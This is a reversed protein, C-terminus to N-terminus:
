WRSAGAPAAAGAPAGRPGDAAKGANKGSAALAASRGACLGTVAAVGLGGEGRSPDFGALAAGAAFLPVGASTAPAGRDDLARLSRDASLGASLGPHLGDARHAFLEEGPLAVIRRRAGAWAPLGFVTESLDGTDAAARIGGGVFRGSAIVIASAEITEADTGRIAHLPEGREAIGDICRVGAAQLAAQLARQLRLGPVSPPAGPLEFVPLRAAGSLQAQVGLPDLIGLTPVLIHTAQAARAARGLAEGLAACRGNADLDRAFDLVTRQADARARYLDVELAVASREPALLEDLGRAALRAELAQAGALAAVGLRAGAPLARLDGAAIPGQALAAAKARGLPTPLWLNRDDASRAGGLALSGLHRRLLSIAADLAPRLEDGPLAYPHGPRRALLAAAEGIPFDGPAEAFDIAGSSLASAGPARAVLVVQAGAERAALAACVAAMGGGVVAVQAKVAM